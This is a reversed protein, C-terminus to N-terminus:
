LRFLGERFFLYAWNILVLVMATAWACLREVKTLHFRIGCALITRCLLSFFFLGLVTFLLPNYLWGQFFHGELFSLAGRTFGCTPCPFGSLNKILCLQVPYNLYYSLFVAGAGLGSWLLVIGLAWFPWPPRRSVRVIEFKM